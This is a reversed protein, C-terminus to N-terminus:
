LKRCIDCTVIIIYKLVEFEYLKICSTFAQSKKFIATNTMENLTPNRLSHIQPQGHMQQVNKHLKNHSNFPKGYLLPM